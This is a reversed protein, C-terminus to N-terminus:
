EELRKWDLRFGRFSTAQEFDQCYYDDYYYDYYYYYGGYDYMSFWVDVVNSRSTHNLNEKNTILNGGYIVAIYQGSYLSQQNALGDFLYVSQSFRGCGSSDDLDLDTFKLQFRSGKPGNLVGVRRFIPGETSLNPYGPSTIMGSKDKMEIRRWSARFGSRTIEEDSSFTIVLVNSTSNFPKIKTQECYVGLMENDSDIIRFTFFFQAAELTLSRVGSATM